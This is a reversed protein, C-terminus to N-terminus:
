NIDSKKGSKWFLVDDILQVVMEPKNYPRNGTIREIIDFVGTTGYTDGGSRYLINHVTRETICLLNAIEKNSRGNAMLEIIQGQRSTFPSLPSLYFLRRKEM